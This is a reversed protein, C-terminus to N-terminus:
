SIESTIVVFQFCFLISIKSHTGVLRDDKKKLDQRYLEAKRLLSFVVFIHAITRTTKFNVKYVDFDYRRNRM